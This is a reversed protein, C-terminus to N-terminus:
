EGPQRETMSIRQNALRRDILSAASGSAFEVKVASAGERRDYSWKRGRSVKCHNSLSMSLVCTQVLASSRENSV